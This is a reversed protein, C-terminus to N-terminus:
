ADMWILCGEISYAEDKSAQTRAASMQEQGPYKFISILGNRFCFTLKYFSSPTQLMETFDELVKTAVLAYYCHRGLLMPVLDKGDMTLRIDHVDVSTQKLIKNHGEFPLQPGIETVTTSHPFEPSLDCM